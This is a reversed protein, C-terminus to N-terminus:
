SDSKNLPFTTDIKFAHHKGAIVVREAALSVNATKEMALLVTTVAEDLADEAREYDEFPAVVYIATAVTWVGASPGQDYRTTEVSVTLDKIDGYDGATPVYPMVVYSDPLSEVLFDVVETRISM